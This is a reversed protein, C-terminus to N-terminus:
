FYVLISIQHICPFIIHYTYYLINMLSYYHFHYLLSLRVSNKCDSYCLSVISKTRYTQIMIIYEKVSNSTIIHPFLVLLKNEVRLFCKFIGKTNLRGGVESYRQALIFSFTAVRYESLLPIQVVYGRKTINRRHYTEPDELYNLHTIDKMQKRSCVMKRSVFALCSFM